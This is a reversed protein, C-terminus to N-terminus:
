RAVASGALANKWMQTAFAADLPEHGFLLRLYLPGYLSDLVVEPDVEPHMEGAEIARAVVKRAQVRRPEIWRALMAARVEPDSVGEAILSATVPGWRGTLVSVLGFIHERLDELPSRSEPFPALPALVALFADTALAAKGPWWRYITVKSAGAREAVAEITLGKFGRKELLEAAAELVKHKVRESRPRGRRCTACSADHAESPASM